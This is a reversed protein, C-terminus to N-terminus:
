SSCLTMTNGRPMNMEPFNSQTQPVGRVRCQSLGELPQDTLDQVALVGIYVTPAVRDSLGDALLSAKQGVENGLQCNQDTRLRRNGRERWQFRLQPELGDEPVKEPHKCSGPVGQHNEDVVQLPEVRRSQGDDLRQYRMGIRAVHQQDPRIAVIVHAGIM